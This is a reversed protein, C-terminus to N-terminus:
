KEGETGEEALARCIARFADDLTAGYTLLTARGVKSIITPIECEALALLATLAARDCAAGLEEIKAPTTEFTSGGNEDNIVHGFDQLQMQLEIARSIAKLATKSSSSIEETTATSKETM